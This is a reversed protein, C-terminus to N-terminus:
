APLDGVQQVIAAHIAVLFTAERKEYRKAVLNAPYILVDKPGPQGSFGPQEAGDASSHQGAEGSSSRQDTGGSPSYQDTGGSPRRQDAEGSSGRQEAGGASSHQEAEGSSSHQEAGGSSGRQDAGGFVALDTGNADEAIVWSFGELTDVVAQGLSVGVANIVTNPDEPDVAQRDLWSAWAHDLAALGTLPRQGCYDQAFQGAAALQQAVWATEVDTLPKVTTDV